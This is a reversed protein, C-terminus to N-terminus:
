QGRLEVRQGDKVLHPDAVELIYPGAMSFALMSLGGVLRVRPPIQKYRQWPNMAEKFVTAKKKSCIDRSM